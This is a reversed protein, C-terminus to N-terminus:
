IVEGRKNLLKGNTSNKSYYIPFTINKEIIFFWNKNNKLKLISDQFQDYGDEFVKLKHKTTWLLPQIISIGYCQTELIMRKGWLKYFPMVFLYRDEDNVKALNKLYFYPFLDKLEPKAYKKMWLYPAVDMEM